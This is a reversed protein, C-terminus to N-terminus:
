PAAVFQVLTQAIDHTIDMVAADAIACFAITNVIQFAGIDTAKYFHGIGHQGVPNDLVLCVGPHIFADFDRYNPGTGCPDAGSGMCGFGACRMDQQFGAGSMRLGDLTILLALM